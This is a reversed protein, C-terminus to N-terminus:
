SVEQNRKRKALNNSAVTSGLLEFTIDIGDNYFDWYDDETASLEAGLSGWFYYPRMSDEILITGSMSDLQYHEFLFHIINTGNGQEKEIVEIMDLHMYVHNDTSTSITFWAYAVVEDEQFIGYGQGYGFDYYMEPYDHNEPMKRVVYESKM